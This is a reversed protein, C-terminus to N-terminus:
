GDNNVNNLEVNKRMLNRRTSILGQTKTVRKNFIIEPHSSPAVGTEIILM